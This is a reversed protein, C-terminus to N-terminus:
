HPSGTDADFFLKLIFQRLVFLRKYLPLVRLERLTM